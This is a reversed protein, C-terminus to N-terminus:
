DSWESKLKWFGRTRHGVEDNIEAVEDCLVRTIWRLALRGDPTDPVDAAIMLQKTTRPKPLLPWVRAFCEKVSDEAVHTQPKATRQRLRTCTPTTYHLMVSLVQRLADDMKNNM